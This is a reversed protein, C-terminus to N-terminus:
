NKFIEFTVSERFEVPSMGTEKKFVRNFTRINDFGTDICIRTVTDDTVALLRKAEDLRLSNIYDALTSGTHQNFMRSFTDPNLGASTALDERTLNETFHTKIFGCVADIKAASDGSVNRSGLSKLKALINRYNRALTNRHTKLEMQNNIRLMLEETSFPKTVYDVAGLGLGELKMFSDARATLFLVPLGEFREDSRIWSLLAHGDMGPMMIDSLVIDIGYVSNLIDVAETGNAATYVTFREKLMDKLVRRLDSNDEVVLIAPADEANVATVDLSAADASIDVGRMFPFETLSSRKETFMVDGRGELHVKGLPIKVTFVTGHDEPYEDIHRSEASVTGGHLEVFDKVISLGIGTGEHRRTSSTDAQTFREFISGIKDEPIGCGTDRFTIIAHGDTSSVFVEIRGGTETFKFSNSLFNSMVHIIKETDAYVMVPPGTITELEIGKLKAASEVGACCSKVLDCLDTEAVHLTMRGATIRSVDLLDNILSLLSRGSRQILELSQTDLPRGSLASDVPALILTLPTRLEHSINAFFDTKARDLNRLKENAAALEMTRESVKQELSETAEKQIRLAESQADEKERKMINIRDALAFSLLTVELASGIWLGNNTFYSVDIIGIASLGYFFMGLLMLSWSILFLRASKNKNKLSILGVTLIFMVTFIGSYSCLQISQQYPLVACLFTGIFLIIINLRFLNNVYIKLNLKLFYFTFLSSNIMTFMVSLPLLHEKLYPFLNYLSGLNINKYTIQAIIIGIIYLIYYLYSLDKISIFIFFNYFAMVILFGLILGTVLTENNKIEYFRISNILNISLQLSNSGCFKFYYFYGNNPLLDVPIAYGPYKIDKNNYNFFLGTNKKNIIKGLHLIYLEVYRTPPYSIDIIFNSTKTTKLTTNIRVWYTSKSYGFNPVDWRSPFWRDKMEPKTVDDITLKGGPDELIEMYRGLSVSETTDDIVVPTLAHLNVSIFMIISFAIIAPNFRKVTLILIKLISPNAPHPLTLLNESNVPFVPKLKVKNRLGIILTFKKIGTNM